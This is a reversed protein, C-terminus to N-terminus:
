ATWSEAARAIREVSQRRPLAESRLSEWARHVVALDNPQEVVIGRPLTDLYIVDGHADFSALVFGGSLGPHSGIETPVIQIITRSLEALEVLLMLQEHMVKAGGVPRQLVPEDILAIFMPPNDGTLIERREVRTQVAQEIDDEDLSSDASLLARVYAPTQLLGPVVLPQFSRLTKAEREMALWPRFWEPATDVNVASLLRGLLGDTGLARDCREAFDRSPTRKGTEVMAILSSSYSIETALQDQSMAARSRARRLEDAFLDLSSV